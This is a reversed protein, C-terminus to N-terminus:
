QSRRSNSELQCRGCQCGVQAVGALLVCARSSDLLAEARAVKM